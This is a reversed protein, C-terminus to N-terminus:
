NEDRTFQEILYFQVNEVFPIKKSTWLAVKNLFIQLIIFVIAEMQFNDIGRLECNEELKAQPFRNAERFM